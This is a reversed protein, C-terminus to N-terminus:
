AHNAIPQTLKRTGASGAQTRPNMEQGAAM